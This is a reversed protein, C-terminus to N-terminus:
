QRIWNGTLVDRIPTPKDIGGLEGSLVVALGHPFLSNVEFASCAPPHNHINASTSVIPAGFRQCLQKALPHATVRVAVSQHNGLIWVPVAMTAPFVWTIAGPWSAAANSWQASTVPALYPTLQAIDVAILLLGKGIDRQKLALLNSVAIENHPDCGLGYVAETPYAVVGGQQLASVARALDSDSFDSNMTLHKPDTSLESPRRLFRPNRLVAACNVHSYFSCRLALFGCNRCPM